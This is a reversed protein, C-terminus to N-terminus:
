GTNITADIEFCILISLGAILIYVSSLLADLNKEKLEGLCFLYLPMVFSLHTFTEYTTGLRQELSM